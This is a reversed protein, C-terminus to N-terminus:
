FIWIEKVQTVLPHVLALPQHTIILTCCAYIRNYLYNVTLCQASIKRVLQRAYNSFLERKWTTPNCECNNNNYERFFVLCM